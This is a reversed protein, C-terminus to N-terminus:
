PAAEYRSPIPLYDDLFAHLSEQVVHPDVEANESQNLCMVAANRQKRLMEM